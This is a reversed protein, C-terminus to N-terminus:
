GGELVEALVAAGSRDVDRTATILTIQQDSAIRRLARVEEARPEEELESAYRRRFEEFREPEHGYWKRLETSPAVEKAWRDLVLAEKSVGRPWLRDVLIRMGDESAPDDYARRVQVRMPSM